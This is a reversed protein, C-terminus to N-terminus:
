RNTPPTRHPQLACRFAQERTQLEAPDRAAHLRERIATENVGGNFIEMPPLRAGPRRGRVQLFADSPFHHAIVLKETALRGLAARLEWLCSSWIEGDHTCRGRMDKPYKRTATSGACTPHSTWQVRRRGLKGLTPKMSQPKQGILLERRSLRLAEGMAGGEHTARFGPV